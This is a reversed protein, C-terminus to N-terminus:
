HSPPLRKVLEAVAEERKLKGALYPQWIANMPEVYHPWAIAYLNKKDAYPTYIIDHAALVQQTAAGVAFFQLVHWLDDAERAQAQAAKGLADALPQVVGTHCAEHYLMELAAFGQYATIGSPIVSHPPQDFTYAGQRTGTLPVVDVRIPSPYEQGFWASTRAQIEAGYHQNLERVKAIWERNMKDQSPWATRAYAAAAGNLTSALAQPLALGDANRRQDDTALADTIYALEDDFVPHRKAYNARYYEVAAQLQQMEQPSPQGDWATQQLGDPRQAANYLFSHLNVLFNSHFDFQVPASHAPIALILSLLATAARRLM